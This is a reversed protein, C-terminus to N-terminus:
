FCPLQKRRTKGQALTAAVCYQISMKRRCFASTPDRSLQLGSLGRGCGFM